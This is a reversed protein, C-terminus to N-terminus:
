TKRKAINNATEILINDLQRTTIKMKHTQEIKNKLELCKCFFNAYEQDINKEKMIYQFEEPVRSIFERIARVARSDYIFFLDPLHFHLYKSVFSRKNLNTIESLKKVLNYHIKLIEIANDNHIKESKLRQLNDDIDSNIFTPAVKEIYFNDNIINTKTKRREIAAAYIRGIFLVKTLVKDTHKHQFNDRCLDYLIKNGFDWYESKKHKSLEIESIDM